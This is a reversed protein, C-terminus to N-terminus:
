NHKRYANRIQDPLDSGPSATILVATPVGLRALTSATGNDASVWLTRELLAQFNEMGIKEWFALASAANLFCFIPVAGSAIREREEWERAATAIRCVPVREVHVGTTELANILDLRVTDSCLHLVRKRRTGGRMLLAGTLQAGLPQQLSIEPILGWDVLRELTGSGVGILGCAGWHRMDYGHSQFYERTTQVSEPNTFLVWSYVSLNEMARQLLVTDAPPGVETALCSIIRFEDQLDQLLLELAKEGSHFIALAPLPNSIGARDGTSVMGTEAEIQGPPALCVQFDKGHLVEIEKLLLPSHLCDPALIRILRNKGQVFIELENALPNSPDLFGFPVTCTPV